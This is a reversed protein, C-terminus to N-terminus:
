KDRKGMGMPTALRISFSWLFKKHSPTPSTNLNWKTLQDFLQEGIDEPPKPTLFRTLNLRAGRPFHNHCNAVSLSAQHLNTTSVLYSLVLLPQHELSTTPGNPTPTHFYILLPHLAKEWNTLYSTPSPNIILNQCSKYRPSWGRFSVKGSNNPVALHLSIHTASWTSNEKKSRKNEILNLCSPSSLIHQIGDLLRANSTLDKLWSSNM